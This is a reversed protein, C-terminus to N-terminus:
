AADMPARPVVASGTSVSAKESLARIEAELRQAERRRERALRRWKRGTVWTGAAGVVLGILASAMALAYLPPWFELPLPDLSVRVPVRNAVAFAIVAVAIPPLIIWTLLKIM